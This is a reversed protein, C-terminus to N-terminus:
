FRVKVENVPCPRWKPRRWKKPGGNRRRWKPAALEAEGGNRGGGMRLRWNPAALVRAAMEARRWDPHRRPLRM